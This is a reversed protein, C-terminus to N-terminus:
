DMQRRVTRRRDGQRRDSGSQRRENGSRAEFLTQYALARDGRGVNPLSAANSSPNLPSVSVTPTLSINWVHGCSPCSYCWPHDDALIARTSQCSPCEVDFVPTVRQSVAVGRLSVFQTSIASNLISCTRGADCLSVL